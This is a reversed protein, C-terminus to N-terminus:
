VEPESVKVGENVEDLFTQNYNYHKKFLHRIEDYTMRKFYNIKFGVMNKLYVIMNRRAQAQTLPKRNLTQYKMVADNLRENRKVKEIVVNWNIDANLEAELQRAVEEDLKIQAQRKLPKPEEILIAKGKRQKTAGATTVAKTMLKAVKVVELVEKVDIPEEKNVDMMSLVKEQHDLDVEKPAQVLISDFLPTVERFFGTGVRKMNAFVKKTLSPTDFIKGNPLSSLKTSHLTTPHSKMGWKLWVRKGDVLAQIRVEDNVTKVKASTWFKKICSTYITPSATLAYKVSCNDNERYYGIREQRNSM